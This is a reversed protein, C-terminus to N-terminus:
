SANDALSRAKHINRDGNSDKSDNGPHNTFNDKLNNAPYEIRSHYVGMTLVRTFAEEIRTLDDITLPCDSLQGDTMKQAIVKGVREKLEFPSPNNLARTAAEVSDGLMIIGSERTNPKPGPYRYDLENVKTGTDHANELARQYFIRLLTTGQHQTIAEIVPRGMRHARAIKIGETIHAFIIRASLEPPLGDHINGKRQNEAFYVPRVSKGVDHYLAMVRCQLANAGISEAAAESLNAVMFSHHYTGPSQLALSKLLPHDGSALEMLRVDTTEDFAFEFLPLLGMALAAVIGGSVLGFAVIIPIDSFVTSSALVLVLPVAIAQVVALAAGVKLLDQRHRCRRAAIGAVLVGILYYAALWIDGDAHYTVLLSLVVGVMLSVRANVFITIIVASLAVPSLFAAADPNIGIGESIGHGAYLAGLCILGTTIITAIIIYGSKRSFHIPQKGSRFFFAGLGVLGTLFVAFALSDVWGLGGERADNLAIIRSLTRQTVRDGERIIVEGRSIHMTAPEISTLAINTAIRTAETSYIVNHEMLSLATELIWTRLSRASGYPAERAKARMIRWAGSVDTITDFHFLTTSDQSKVSRLEIAGREPLLALDHMVMREAPLSLFYGLAEGADEIEDLGELLQFVGANDPLGLEAEFAVIRQPVNLKDQTKRLAVNEIATVSRNRIEFLLEPDYVFQPRVSDIAQKERLATEEPDSVELNRDARITESAISNLHPIPLSSSGLPAFLATMAVVFLILLPWDLLPRSINWREEALARIASSSLLKREAQLSRDFLSSTDKTM